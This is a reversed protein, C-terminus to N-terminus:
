SKDSHNTARALPGLRWQGALMRSHSNARQDSLNYRDILPLPYRFINLRNKLGTGYNWVMRRIRHTRALSESAHGLSLTSCDLFILAPHTPLPNSVKGNLKAGEVTTGAYLQTLAGYSVDYFCLNQLYSVARSYSSICSYCVWLAQIFSGHHRAIGTKIIGPHLATSVIGQSGYRRALEASFIINGKEHRVQAFTCCTVDYLSSHSVTKSQGYLALTSMKRRAPSDKFTNYHLGSFLHGSSSTNVIRATGDSSAAAAALAAPMVLKTFYFHGVVNTGFQLDYGDVTLM